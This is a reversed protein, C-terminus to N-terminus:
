LMAALDARSPLNKLLAKIDAELSTDQSVNSYESPAPSTPPSATHKERTAM